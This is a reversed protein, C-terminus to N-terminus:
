HASGSAKEGGAYRSRFEQPIGTETLWVRFLAGAERDSGLGIELNVAAMLDAARWGEGAYIKRLHEFAHHLIESGVSDELAFFFLESKLETYRRVTAPESLEIGLVARERRPKELADLQLLIGHVLRRRADSGERAIAALDAAYDALVSMPFPEVRWDPRVRFDLWTLALQRDVTRAGSRWFEAACLEGGLLAAGPVAWCPQLAPCEIIRVTGPAEARGGFEGDYLAATRATAEAAQQAVDHPLAQRTWLIVERSAAAVKQEQFEGGVAFPEREEPPERFRFVISGADKTEGRAQGSAHVRFGAPVRVALEWKKPPAGGRAFPGDASPPLLVPAWQGVPLVFGAEEVVVGGGEMGALAYSIAVEQRAGTALPERFAIRVTGRGATPVPTVESGESEARLQSVAHTKGDPLEVDLGHIPRDGTNKVRWVARVEVRAQPSRIYTAELRQRDIKFAPGFPLECGAAVIGAALAGALLAARRLERRSRPFPVFNM